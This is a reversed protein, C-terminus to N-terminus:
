YVIFKIREDVDIYPLLYVYEDEEIVKYSSVSYGRYKYFNGYRSFSKKIAYSNTEVVVSPVSTGSFENYNAMDEFDEDDLDYESFSIANSLSSQNSMDIKKLNAVFDNIDNIVMGFAPPHGGADCFKQFVTLMGRSKLDRFSGKYRGDKTRSVVVVASNYKESLKNALLGTYNSRDYGDLGIVYIDSIDTYVINGFFQIECNDLLVSRLSIADKHTETTRTLDAMDLLNSNLLKNIIRFEEARFLANIKNNFKFGFFRKTLIGNDPVFQNLPEMIIHQDSAMFYIARNIDNNMDMCDSYLTAIALTSLMEYPLHYLQLLKICLLFSVAGASLKYKDYGLMINEIYPNILIVNEIYNDYMYKSQHHDIVIVDSDSNVIQQLKEIENTATDFIIVLDYKEEIAKQMGSISLKHSRSDYPHIDVNMIELLDFTKKMQVLALLGDVDPDTIMLVRENNNKAKVIRDIFLKENYFEFNELSVFNLLNAKGLKTLSDYFSM